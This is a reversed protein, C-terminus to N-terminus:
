LAARAGVRRWGRNASRDAIVAKLEDLWVNPGILDGNRLVIIYWGQRRLWERRAEDHARQDPGHFEEGDFEIAIRLAKYGLDLWYTTRNPGSARVQPDPAPLGFQVIAMRAESEKFSESRADGLQIISRALRIGRRGRMREAAALAMLESKTVLGARLFADVAGLARGPQLACALDVVTRSATTLCVGHLQTVDEAPLTRRVGVVSMRRASYRGALDLTRCADPDHPPYVDVGHLLAATRDCAVQTPSVLQIARAITPVDRLLHAVVYVGHSVRVIEGCDLAAAITHSSVKSSRVQSSTFAGDPAWAPMLM